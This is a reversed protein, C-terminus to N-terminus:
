EASGTPLNSYGHEFVVSILQDAVNELERSSYSSGSLNERYQGSFDIITGLLEDPLPPEMTQHESAIRSLLKFAPSELWLEIHDPRNVVYERVAAYVVRGKPMLESADVIGVRPVTIDRM